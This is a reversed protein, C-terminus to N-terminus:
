VVHLYILILYLIILFLASSVSNQWVWITVRYLSFKSIRFLPNAYAERRAPGNLRCTVLNSDFILDHFVFCFESLETYGFHLGAFHFKSIRFFPNIYSERRVPGKLRCTFLNSDFIIDHSVFCFEGLEAMGLNYGQLAFVEFHSLVSQRLGRTESPGEFSM